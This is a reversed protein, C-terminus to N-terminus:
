RAIGLKGKVKVLTGPMITYSNVALAVDEPSDFRPANEILKVITRKQLLKEGNPRIYAQTIYHRELQKIHEAKLENIARAKEQVPLQSLPKGTRKDITIDQLNVIKGDETSVAANMSLNTSFANGMSAAVNFANGEITNGIEAASKAFIYTLNAGRAGPILFRGVTAAAERGSAVWGAKYENYQDPTLKDIFGLAAGPKTKFIEYQREAFKFATDMTTDLTSTVRLYDKSTKLAEKRGETGAAIKAKAQEEKEIETREIDSVTAQLKVDKNLFLKQEPGLLQGSEATKTIEGTDTKGVIPEKSTKTLGGMSKNLEALKSLTDEKTPENIGLQKKLGGLLAENIQKQIDATGETEVAKAIKSPAEAESVDLSSIKAVADLASIAEASSGYETADLGTKEKIAKGLSSSSLKKQRDQEAWKKLLGM